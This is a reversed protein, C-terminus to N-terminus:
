KVSPGVADPDPISVVLGDPASAVAPDIMQAQRAVDFTEPALYDVPAGQTKAAADVGNKVVSWYPDAAQGHTVVVIHTPQGEAAVGPGPIAVATVTLAALVLAPVHRRMRKAM